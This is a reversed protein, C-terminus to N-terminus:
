PRLWDCGPLNRVIAFGIVLVCLVWPWLHHSFLAPLNKGTTQRLVFRLLAWAGVPLLLVLLANSQLAAGLHGHLLHHLARQGGCGPCELGSITHFACRPFFPHETPNFRFFLFLLVAGAGLLLGAYLAARGPNRAPATTVVSSNM